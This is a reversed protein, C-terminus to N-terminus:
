VNNDQQNIFDVFREDPIGLLGAFRKIANFKDTPLYISRLMNNTQPDTKLRQILLVSTATSEPNPENEEKIQQYIKSLKM